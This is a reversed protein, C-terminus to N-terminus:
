REEEYGFKKLFSLIETRQPEKCEKFLWREILLLREVEDITDEYECDLMTCVGDLIDGKTTHYEKIVEKM